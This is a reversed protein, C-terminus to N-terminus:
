FRVRLRAGVAHHGPRVPPVFLENLKVSHPQEIYKLLTSVLPADQRSLALQLLDIHTQPPPPPPPPDDWPSGIGDGAAADMSSAAAAASGDGLSDASVSRISGLSSGQESIRALAHLKKYGLIEDAHSELKQELSPPASLTLLCRAFRSTLPALPSAFRTTPSSFPPRPRSVSMIRRSWSSQRVCCVQELISPEGWHVALVAEETANACDNLLALQISRALDANSELPTEDEHM